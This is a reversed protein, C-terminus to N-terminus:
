PQPQAGDFFRLNLNLDLNLVLCLL